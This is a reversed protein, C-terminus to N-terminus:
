SKMNEKVALSFVVYRADKRQLYKIKYKTQQSGFVLRLFHENIYLYMYVVCLFLFEEKKKPNLGHTRKM